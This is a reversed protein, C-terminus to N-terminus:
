SMGKKQKYKVIHRYASSDSIGYMKGIQEYTHTAKLDVMHQREHDTYRASKCIDPSRMGQYMLAMEVTMPNKAKIAVYLAHYNYFAIPIM